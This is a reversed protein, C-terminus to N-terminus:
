KLFREAATQQMIGAVADQQRGVSDLLRRLRAADLRRDAEALVLLTRWLCEKGRLASQLAELELHGAPAHRVKLPNLPGLRAVLSAAWGLAAKVRSRRYGLSASIAKVESEDAAIEQELGALVQGHGTGAWTHKAAEFLRVGGAAALMHYDLYASLADDDLTGTRAQSSDMDPM